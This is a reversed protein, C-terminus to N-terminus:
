LPCIILYIKDYQMLFREVTVTRGSQKINSIRFRQVLTRINRIIMSYPLYFKKEKYGKDWIIKSTLNWLIAKKEMHSHSNNLTISTLTLQLFWKFVFFRIKASKINDNDGGLDGQFKLTTRAEWEKISDSHSQLKWQM